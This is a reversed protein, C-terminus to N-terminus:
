GRACEWNFMRVLVGGQENIYTRDWGAEIRSQRVVKLHSPAFEAALEAISLDGAEVIPQRDRALWEAVLRDYKTKSTASNWPGLLHDRGNLTVIAQGSQKHKRYKPIANILKPM